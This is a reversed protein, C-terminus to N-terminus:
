GGASVTESGGVGSAVGLLHGPVQYRGDRCGGRSAWHRGSVGCLRAVASGSLDPSERCGRALIVWLLGTLGFGLFWFGAFGVHLRFGEGMRPFGVRPASCEAPSRM